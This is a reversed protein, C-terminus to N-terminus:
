GREEVKSLFARAANVTGFTTNVSVCAADGFNSIGESDLHRLNRYAVDCPTMRRLLGVAEKLLDSDPSVPATLCQRLEDRWWFPLLRGRPSLRTESFWTGEHPAEGLLMRVLSAPVVVTEQAQQSM